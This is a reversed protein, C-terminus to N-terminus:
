SAAHGSREAATRVLIRVSSSLFLGAMGIAVALDPWPTATWWVLAAAIMVAVNGIADNRTCLWVSMVNADGDRWGYLLIARYRPDAGDFPLDHGHDHGHSDHHHASM